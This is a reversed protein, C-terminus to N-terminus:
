PQALPVAAPQAEDARKMRAVEACNLCCYAYPGRNVMIESLFIPTGCQNCTLVLGGGRRARRALEPMQAALECNPSCYVATGVRVMTETRV